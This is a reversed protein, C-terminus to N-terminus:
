LPSNICSANPLMEDAFATQIGLPLDDYLPVIFIIKSFDEGKSREAFLSLFHKFRGIFINSNTM